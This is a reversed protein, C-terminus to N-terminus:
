CVVVEGVHLGTDHGGQGDGGQEVDGCLASRDGTKEGELLGVGHVEEGEGGLVFEADAVCGTLQGLLHVAAQVEEDDGALVFEADAM